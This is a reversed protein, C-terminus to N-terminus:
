RQQIALGFQPNLGKDRALRELVAQDLKPAPMAAWKEFATKGDWKQLKAPPLPVIQDADKIEIVLGSSNPKYTALM